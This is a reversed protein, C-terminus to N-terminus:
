LQRATLLELEKQKQMDEPNFDAQMPREANFPAKLFTFERRYGTSAGKSKISSTIFGEKILWQIYSRTKNNASVESNNTYVGLIINIVDKMTFPDKTKKYILSVIEEYIIISGVKEIETMKNRLALGKSKSYSNKKYEEFSKNRKNPKFDKEEKSVTISKTTPEPIPLTSPTPVPKLKRILATRRVDFIRIFDIAAKVPDLDKPVDDRVVFIDGLILLETIRGNMVQWISVKDSDTKLSLIENDTKELDKPQVTSNEM